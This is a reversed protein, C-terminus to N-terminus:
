FDSWPGCIPGVKFDINKCIAIQGTKKNMVVAVGPIWSNNPAPFLHYEGNGLKKSWPYCNPRDENTGCISIQGTSHKIRWLSGKINVAGYSEDNGWACADIAVCALVLCLLGCKLGNSM